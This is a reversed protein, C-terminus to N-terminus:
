PPKSASFGSTGQFASVVVAVRAAASREQWSVPQVVSGALRDARSGV